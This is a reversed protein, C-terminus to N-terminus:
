SAAILFRGSEPGSPPPPAGPLIELGCGINSGGSSAWTGGYTVASGTGPNTSTWAALYSGNGSDIQTSFVTTASNPTLARNASNIISCGYAVSDTDMSTIAFTGASGSSASKTGSNAGTQTSDVNTLVRVALYRSGTTTFAASVTMSGPASSLYQRSVLCRCSQGAINAGTTWSGGQNDSITIALTGSHFDSGAIAVLLSGAPPSFSATTTTGSGLNVAGAVAPTSGDETIAM